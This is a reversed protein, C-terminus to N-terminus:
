FVYDKTLKSLRRRTRIDRVYERCKGVMTGIENDSYKKEELLKCIKHIIEPDTTYPKVDSIPFKYNKSIEKWCEGSKIHQAMKKTIGLKNAIDGTSWGDQLLECCKIATKEDMKALHCTEGVASTLKNEVAHVTNERQTLWELNELTTNLKNGDKHNPVLDDYSLGMDLYKKPIPIFAIALLRHVSYNKIISLEPILLKVRYYGTDSIFPKLIRDTDDNRVKGFNSVSYRTKVESIIIKKWIQPDLMELYVKKSM